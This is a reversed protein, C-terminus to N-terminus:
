QAKILNGNEFQGTLPPRKDKYEYRGQGHFNGKSFEGGYADGNAYNFVGFGDMQGQANFYGMYVDGNAFSYVGFNRVANNFYGIFLDNNDWLYSGLGDVCNGTKCPGPETNKTNPLAQKLMGEQYTGFERTGDALFKMGKGHLLGNEWHGFHSETTNLAEYVGVGNMRDDKWQGIYTGSKNWVYKGYGEKLKNKFFGEYYGNTYQYKGFGDTCNGSKCGTSIAVEGKKSGTTLGSYYTIFYANGLADLIRNKNDDYKITYHSIRGDQYITKTTRTDGKQNTIDISVMMLEKDIAYRYQELIRYEDPRQYDFETYTTVRGQADYSYSKYTFNRSVDIKNRYLGNNYYTYQYHVDKKKESIVRGKNDTEYSVTYNGLISEGSKGTLRGQADYHLTDTFVTEDHYLLNGKVDFRMESTKNGFKDFQEVMAVDGYLKFHNLTHVVPVPNEPAEKWNVHYGTQAQVATAAILLLFVTFLPKTKM